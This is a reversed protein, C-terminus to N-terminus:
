LPLTCRESDFLRRFIVLLHPKWLLQSKEKQHVSFQSYKVQEKSVTKQLVIHSYTSKWIANQSKFRLKIDINNKYDLM